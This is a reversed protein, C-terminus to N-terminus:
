NAASPIVSLVFFGIDVHDKVFEIIGTLLFLLCLSCINLRFVIGRSSKFQYAKGISAHSLAELASQVKSVKSSVM